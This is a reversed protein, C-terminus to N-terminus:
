REAILRRMDELERALDEARREASVARVYLVFFMAALFVCGIVIGVGLVRAGGSVENATQPMAVYGRRLARMM